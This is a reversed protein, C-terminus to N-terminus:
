RSSMPINGKCVRDNGEREKIIDLLKSTFAFDLNKLNKPYLSILDLGNDKYLKKMQYIKPGILIGVLGLGILLYKNM